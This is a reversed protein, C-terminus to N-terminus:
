CDPCQGALYPLVICLGPQERPIRGRGCRRWAPQQSCGTGNGDLGKTRARIEMTLSSAPNAEDRECCPKVGSPVLSRQTRSSLNTIFTLNIRKFASFIINIFLSIMNLYNSNVSAICTIRLTVMRKQIKLFIGHFHYSLSDRLANSSRCLVWGSASEFFYSRLDPHRLLTINLYRYIGALAAIETHDM